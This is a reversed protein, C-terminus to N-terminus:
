FFLGFIGTLGFHSHIEVLFVSIAVVVILLFGTRSVVKITYVFYPYLVMILWYWQLKDFHSFYIPLLIRHRFGNILMIIFPMCSHKVLYQRCLNQFLNKTALIWTSFRTGSTIFNGLQFNYCFDWINKLVMIYYLSM